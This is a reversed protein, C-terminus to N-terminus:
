GGGGVMTPEPPLISRSATPPSSAQRPVSRPSPQLPPIEAAPPIPPIPIQPPTPLSDAVQQRGIGGSYSRKTDVAGEYPEGRTKLESAYDEPNGQSDRLYAPLDPKAYDEWSGTYRDSPSKQAEEDPVIPSVGGAYSKKTDIAGEYPEGAQQLRSPSLDRRPPGSYKDVGGKNFISSLTSALGQGLDKSTPLIPGLPPQQLETVDRGLYQLSKSLWDPLAPKAAPKGPVEQGEKNFMKKLATGVGEFGKLGGDMGPSLFDIVSGEEAPAESRQPLDYYADRDAGLRTKLSQMLSQATQGANDKLTDYAGGLGGQYLNKLGEYGGESPISPIEWSTAALGEGVDRAAGGIADRFPTPPGGGGPNDHLSPGQAQKYVNQGQQEDEEDPYAQQYANEYSLGQSMLAKVRAKDAKKELFRNVLMAALKVRQVHSKEEKKEAFGNLLLTALKIRQPKCFRLKLYAKKEAKSGKKDKRNRVIVPTTAPKKKSVALLSCNAKKISDRLMNNCEKSVEFHRNSPPLPVEYAGMKLVGAPVRQKAIRRAVRERVNREVAKDLKDKDKKRKKEHRSIADAAAVVPTTITKWATELADESKKEAKKKKKSKEPLSKHDPTHDSWKKAMEPENAYMWRQQSKSKFPM